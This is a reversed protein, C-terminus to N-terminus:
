VATALIQRTGLSLGRWETEDELDPLMGSDLSNLGLLRGWLRGFLRIDTLVHNRHMVLRDKERRLKSRKASDAAQRWKENLRAELAAPEEEGKLLDDAVARNWDLVILRKNSPDWHLDPLKRDGRTTVGHRFMFDLLGAYQSASELTLAEDKAGIIQQNLSWDRPVWEQIIVGTKESDDRDRQSLYEGKEAGQPVYKSDALKKLMELEGWFLQKDEVSMREYAVKVAVTPGSGAEPVGEYVVATMGRGSQAKLKYRTESTLGIVISM